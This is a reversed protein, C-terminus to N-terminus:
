KYVIPLFDCVMHLYWNKVAKSNQLCRNVRTGETDVKTMRITNTNQVCTKHVYM